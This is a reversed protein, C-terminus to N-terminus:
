NRARADTRCIKPIWTDVCLAGKSPHAGMIWFPLDALTCFWSKWFPGLVPGVFGSTAAHRSGTKQGRKTTLINFTYLLVNVFCKTRRGGTIELDPARPRMEVHWPANVTGSNESPRLSETMYGMPEQPFRDFRIACKFARSANSVITPDSGRM